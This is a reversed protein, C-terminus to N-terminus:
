PITHQTVNLVSATKEKLFDRLLRAAPTISQRTPFVLWLQSPLPQYEPLIQVVRGTMLDSAMDVCSKVAIGKGAVCWRRVIDGDNSARNGKMKVVVKREGQSLEWHDYTQDHLQYFLGNHQKLETLTKPEGQESLYQPSACMIAPVDCIKFGYLHSDEPPGYRLAMDVPDRYFDVLSDSVNLRVRVKSHRQMFEDIWPTVLNRGLDSSLALRLECDLSEDEHKIHDQAQSLLLLAEECKPLFREGEQSVRLKRTTRIFLETGINREIRKIAASATATRMDFHHAAATISGLEAVKIVIKLDEIQV